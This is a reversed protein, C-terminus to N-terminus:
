QASPATGYEVVFRIDARSRLAAVARLFQQQQRMLTLVRRIDDRVEEFSVTGPPTKARLEAIHFGFPTRFIGTREGPSLNRIADEFEPVMKGAVFEGLDGGNGKCDSYREAVESFSVGALLEAQATEIIARAEDEDQGGDTHKVIHAARFLAAGRFNDGQSHYFAEIEEETPLPAGAAMEYTTRQLRFQGEIWIRMQMEDTTSRLNGLRRQNQVEREVALADIPRVDRAVMQEIVLTDIAALEAAARLRKDRESLDNIGNWKPEHQLRFQQAAIREESILEGNVSYPM